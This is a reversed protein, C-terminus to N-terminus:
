ARALRIGAVQHMLEKTDGGADCWSSMIRGARPWGESPPQQDTWDRLLLTAVTCKAARIVATCTNQDHRM